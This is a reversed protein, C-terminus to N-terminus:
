TCCPFFPVTVSHPCLSPVTVSHPCLSPVTVSHACHPCLSPVTVSHPCLSLILACYPCLSLILVILACHPSLVREFFLISQPDIDGLRKYMAIHGPRLETWCENWGMIFSECFWGCLFWKCFPNTVCKECKNNKSSQVYGGTSHYLWGREYANTTQYEEAKEELAKKAKAIAEKDGGEKADEFAKICKELEKLATEAKAIAEKDGGHKADELAKKCNELEEKAGNQIKFENKQKKLKKGGGSFVQRHIQM